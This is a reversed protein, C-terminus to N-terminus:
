FRDQHESSPFAGQRLWDAASYPRGDCALRVARAGQHQLRRVRMLEVSRRHSIRSFAGWFRPDSRKLRVHGMDFVGRNNGLYVQYDRRDSM